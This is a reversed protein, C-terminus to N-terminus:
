FWLHLMAIAEVLDEKRFAGGKANRRIQLTLQTHSYPDVIVGATYRHQQDNRVKVDPDMYDYKAQLAVGRVVSLELEQYSFLSTKQAGGYRPQDWTSRLDSEGLYVLPYANVAWIPGAVISRSNSFNSSDLFDVYEASVGIQGALWRYGANFGAGAGRPLQEGPWGPVGQYFVDVNAYPFNADFGAEVGFAQSSQDFGEGRRIFSTHDPIQWGHPKNFRGARLFTGYTSGTTEAFFERVALYDKAQLKPSAKNDQLNGVTRRRAGQLGADGYLTLFSSPRFMTYLDAQMPFIAPRGPDPFYGMVRFDGGIGFRPTPPIAGFRDAIQTSDHDGAAWGTFGEWLRFRAPTTTDGPDRNKEADGDRSPRNGFMPVEELGFFRGAPKRMGGGTASTHCGRCDLTCQRKALEPNKWGTPEIHCTNCAHGARVSYFPTAGANGALICLVFGLLAGISGRM